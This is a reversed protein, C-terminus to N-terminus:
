SPRTTFSGVQQMPQLHGHGAPESRAFLLVNFAHFITVVIIGPANLDDGTGLQTCTARGPRRM